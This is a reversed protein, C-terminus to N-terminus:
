ALQQRFDHAAKGPCLAAIVTRSLAILDFGFARNLFGSSDNVGGQVPIDAQWRLQGDWGYLKFTAPAGAAVGPKNIGLLVGTDSGILVPTNNLLVTKPPFVIRATMQM